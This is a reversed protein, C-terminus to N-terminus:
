IRIPAHVYVQGTVDTGVPDLTKFAHISDDIGSTGDRTIEFRQM